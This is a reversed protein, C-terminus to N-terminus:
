TCSTCSAIRDRKWCAVANQEKRRGVPGQAPTQSVHRSDDPGSSLDAPFQCYSFSPIRGSTRIVLWPGYLSYIFTNKQAQSYVTPDWDFVDYICTLTTLACEIGFVLIWLETAGTTGSRGSLKFVAWAVAPLQYYLELYTFLRFWSPQEDHAAGLFPDNYTQIYWTRLTNLFSLPSGEPQWLHAPYLFPVLDVAPSTLRRKVRSM